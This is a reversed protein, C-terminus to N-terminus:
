LPFVFVAHPPATTYSPIRPPPKAYRSQTWFKTPDSKCARDKKLLQWFCFYRRMSANISNQLIDAKTKSQKKSQPFQKGWKRIGIENHTGVFSWTFKLVLKQFHTEMFSTTCKSQYVLERSRASKIMMWLFNNNWFTKWHSKVKVRKSIELLLFNESTLTLPGCPTINELRFM